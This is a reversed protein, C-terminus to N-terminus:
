VHTRKVEDLFTELLTKVELSLIQPKEEYKYVELSKLLERFLKEQKKDAVLVSGYYSIQYATNKSQTLDCNDLVDLAARIERYKKLHHNKILKGITFFTMVLLTLCLLILILLSHDPVVELTYIDEVVIRRMM